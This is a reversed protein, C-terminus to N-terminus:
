TPLTINMEQILKAWRQNEKAIHAGFATPDLYYWTLGLQTMREKAMSTPGIAEVAHAMEDIARRPTGKPVLLGGWATVSAAEFGSEYYSPVDPLDPHRTKGTIGIARVLGKRAPGLASPLSDFTLDLHGGILDAMAPGAGKYPVHNFKVGAVRQFLEGIIHNGSGTGSSGMNLPRDLSKAYRVLEPLTHVPVTKPNVVALAETIWVACVPDLQTVPDFPLSKNLHQNIVVNNFSAMLVTQGDPKSHIVSEVGINGGAGAKNEVIVKWGQANLGDAVMRACADLGGGAAFPVVIRILSAPAQSNALRPALVAALALLARRRDIFVAM